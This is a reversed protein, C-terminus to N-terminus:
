ATAVMHLLIALIKGIDPIYYEGQDLTLETDLLRLFRWNTGTTAAGYVQTAPVEKTRNFLWAARMGAICQGLGTNVNDNKAEAVAVVPATLLSSEASHTILFDCYGNLGMAADVNFEVGSFVAHRYKSLWGFELLIPAVVFESRAKETNAGIAFAVGARLRAVFDASVPVPQLDTFLQATTATLGLKTVVDPFSFDRFSM